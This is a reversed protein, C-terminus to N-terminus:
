GMSPSGYKQYPVRVYYAFKALGRRLRHPGLYEAAALLTWWWLPSLRVRAAAAHRALFDAYRRLLGYIRPTNFGGNGVSALKCRQQQRCARRRILWCKYNGVRPKGAVSIM